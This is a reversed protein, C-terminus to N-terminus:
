RNVWKSLISSLNRPATQVGAYSKKSDIKQKVSINEHQKM